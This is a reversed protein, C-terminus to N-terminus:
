VSTDPLFPLLEGHTDPFSPAFSSATAVLSADDSKALADDNTHLMIALHALQMNLAQWLPLHRFTDVPPSTDVLYLEVAVVALAKYLTMNKFRGLPFLQRHLKFRKDLPVIFGHTPVPSNRDIRQTPAEVSKVNGWAEAAIFISVEVIAKWTLCDSSKIGLRELHGVVVRRAEHDLTRLWQSSMTLRKLSLAELWPFLEKLLLLVGGSAEEFFVLRRDSPRNM